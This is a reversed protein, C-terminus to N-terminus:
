PYSSGVLVGNTQCMDILGTAVGATLRGSSVSADPAESTRLGAPPGRRGSGSGSSWTVSQGIQPSGSVVSSPGSFQGPQPARARVLVRSGIRAFITAGRM